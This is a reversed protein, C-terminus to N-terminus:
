YLETYADITDSLHFYRIPKESWEQLYAAKLARTLEAITMENLAIHPGSVVETLAGQHSSIIPVQLAVTEAAAFCFGESYSSIVVCSSNLIKRRLVNRPLNHHFKIYDGLGHKEILNIITHYLPKPQKPIILKFKSNPFSQRFAAAAPILLDLGKSIGLRGFYTFTFTSPPSPSYNKFDDYEIGNYIRAIKSEPIGHKILERKTFESVAIFKHFPLKLLIKEFYYFANKQFFSTFPLRKWLEGWVEHFTVFVPKGTLKGAISAPLAANYTTTHILDCDRAYRVVEPLSLFTFAFRNFCNIRIIKVGEHIEEKALKKDFQTTIVTIEYGREALATTLVYFLKEAGGIYPYFHELVFLIKKPAQSKNRKSM